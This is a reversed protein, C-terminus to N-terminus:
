LLAAAIKAIRHKYCHESLVRQRGAAGIDSALRPERRLRGYIDELEDANRYILVERGREFCSGLDPQDDSVVPTGLIYPDFSRQNLGHVINAEHRINLVGIHRRYAAALAEVDLRGAHIVHPAQAFPQWGPGYLEVPTQMRNLMDVRHPTPNAVFVLRPIRVTADPEGLRSSAAHPLYICRSDFAMSQHQKVFFSDTYAVVDYWAATSRDTEFFSDGVWAALPPRNPLSKLRELVERPVEFGRVALILDPHFQRIKRVILAARPAGLAPTLLLQEITASLRPNRTPCIEIKHGAAALDAACDELWHTVSGIKGIVSIKMDPGGAGVGSASPVDGIDEDM